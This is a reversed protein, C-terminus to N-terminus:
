IKRRLLSLFCAHLKQIISPYLIFSFYIGRYHIRWSVSSLFCPSLSLWLVLDYIIVNSYAYITTLLTLTSLCHCWYLNIGCQSISFCVPGEASANLAKSNCLVTNVTICNYATCTVACDCCQICRFYQFDVHFAM